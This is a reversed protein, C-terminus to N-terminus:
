RLYSDWDDHSYDYKWTTEVVLRRVFGCNGGPHHKTITVVVVVVVVVVVFDEIVM